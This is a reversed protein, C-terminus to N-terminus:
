LLSLGLELRGAATCAASINSQTQKGSALAESRLKNAGITGPSRSCQWKESLTQIALFTELDRVDRDVQDVKRSADNNPQLQQPQEIPTTSMSM